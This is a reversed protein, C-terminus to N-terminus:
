GPKPVNSKVSGGGSPADRQAPDISCNLRLSAAAVVDTGVGAVTFRLLAHEVPVNDATLSTTTAYARTPKDARVTTDAVAGFTLTRTAGSAPGGSLLTAVLALAAVGVPFRRMFRM